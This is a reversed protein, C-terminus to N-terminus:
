PSLDKITTIRTWKKTTLIKINKEEVFQSFTQPLGYEKKNVKLMKKQFIEPSLVCAGTYILNCRSSGTRDHYIKALNNDPTAIIKGAKVGAKEPYVLISWDDPQIETLKELDDKHYIDDSMLVMFKEKIINKCQWLAHATGKQEPQNVYHIPINKYSEGFQKKIQVGLHGITIIIESTCAPLSDLKHELLTKGQFNLLPKPTTKSITGMRSGKGAALIIVQM